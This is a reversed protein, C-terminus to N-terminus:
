RSVIAGADKSFDRDPGCFTHWVPLFGFDITESFFCCCFSLVCVYMYVCPCVRVCVCVYVCVCVCM